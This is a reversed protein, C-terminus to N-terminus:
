ATLNSHNAGGPGPIPSLPNAPEFGATGINLHLRQPCKRRRGEVKVHTLGWALPLTAISGLTM